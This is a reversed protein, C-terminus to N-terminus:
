IDQYSMRDDQYYMMLEKTHCRHGYRASTGPYCRTGLASTDQLNDYKYNTHTVTFTYHSQQFTEMTCVERTGQSSGLLTNWPEHVFMCSGYINTYHMTPAQPTDHLIGYIDKPQASHNRTYRM